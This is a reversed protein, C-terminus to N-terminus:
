DKIINKLEINANPRFLYDRLKLMNDDNICPNSLIEKFSTNNKKVIHKNLWRIQFLMSFIGCETNKYQHQKHNIHIVFKQNPNMENCQSKVNNIFTMLYSPINNGVSDYYYGGYTKLKPNICLFTSTWHSGPEDHKDLNTILGVFSIKQKILQQINIKCFESYLCVGNESAVAFDIPFVGIFKYKFLKNNTYKNMIKEIDYNSLWTKPNTYWSAPKEPMLEKEEYYRLIRKISEIKEPKKLKKSSLKELFRPWLWYKNNLKYRKMQMNLDNFLKVPEQKTIIKKDSVSNFVSVMKMMFVKSFPIKNKENGPSVYLLEKM